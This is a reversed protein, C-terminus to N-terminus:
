LCSSSHPNIKKLTTHMSSSVSSSCSWSELLLGRNQARFCSISFALWPASRSGRPCIDTMTAAHLRGPARHPQSRYQENACSCRYCSDLRWLKSAVHALHFLTYQCVQKEEDPETDVHALNLRKASSNSPRQTKGECRERCSSAIGEDEYISLGSVLVVLNHLLFLQTVGNVRIATPWVLSFLLRRM